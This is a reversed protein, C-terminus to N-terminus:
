DVPASGGANTVKVNSHPQFFSLGHSHHLSLYIDLRLHSVCFRLDLISETLLENHPMLHLRQANPCVTTLIAIIGPLVSVSWTNIYWAVSFFLM